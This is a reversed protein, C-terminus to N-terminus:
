DNKSEKAQFVIMHLATMIFIFSLWFGQWMDYSISYVWMLALFSTMCISAQRRCMNRVKHIIVSLYAKLALIFAVGIIGLDLWSQLMYDHPHSIPMAQNYKSVKNLNTFSETANLGYGFLPAQSVKESILYWIELRNIAYGSKLFESNALFSRITIHEFSYIILLPKILMIVCTLISITALSWRYRTFYQVSLYISPILIVLIQSAQSETGFYALITLTIPTLFHYHKKPTQM